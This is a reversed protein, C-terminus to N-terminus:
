FHNSCHKNTCSVMYPAKNLVEMPYGCTPCKEPVPCIDQEIANVSSGQRRDELPIKKDFSNENSRDPYEEEFKVIDQKNENRKQIPELIHLYTQIRIFAKQYELSNEECIDLKDITAKILQIIEKKTKM